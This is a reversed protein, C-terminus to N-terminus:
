AARWLATAGPGAPATAEASAPRAPTADASTPESTGLAHLRDSWRAELLRRDLERAPDLGPAAIPPTLEVLTPARFTWAELGRAHAELCIEAVAFEAGLYGEPLAGIEELLTRRLAFAGTSVVGTRRVTWDAEYDRPFGQLPVRVDVRRASGTLDFEGGAHCLSDDAHVIRGGAIGCERRAALPLLLPELWGHREPVVGSGLFMVAGATTIAAAADLVVGGPGPGSLILLRSGIGYIAALGELLRRVGAAREPRDLVHVLEISRMAPDGAFLGYRCRLHDPDDGVTIVVTARPSRPQRGIELVTDVTARRPALARVVPEICKAVLEPTFWARPVAGLVAEHALGPHRTPGEALQLRQGSALSLAVHCPADEPGALREGAFLVFGRGSARQHRDPRAPPEATPHAFRDLARVPLNQSRGAREVRIAEVVGDRDALWGSVLVGTACGVILDVGADLPAARLALRTTPAPLVARLERLAARAHDNVAALAALAEIVYGRAGARREDPAALWEFADPLRGRAPALARWALGAEGLILAEAAGAPDAELLLRLLAGRGGPAHEDCAPPAPSPQLGRRTLLWATLRPGFWGGARGEYLLYRGVLVCRPALSKPQGVLERLLLRSQSLFRADGGLRFLGACTEFIFRALRLRQAPGLGDALEFISAEPTGARPPLGGVALTSGGRAAIRVAAIRDDGPTTSRFVIAERAGGTALQLRIRALPPRVLRDDEYIRWERQMPEPLGDCAVLQVGVGLAHIWLPTPPVAVAAIM